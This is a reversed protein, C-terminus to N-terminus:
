NKVKEISAQGQSNLQIQENQRYENVMNEVFRIDEESGYIGELVERLQDKEQLKALKRILIGTSNALKLQRKITELRQRMTNTMNYCKNNPIEKDISKQNQKSLLSQLNELEKNVEEELYVQQAELGNIRNENKRIKIWSYTSYSALITFLILNIQLKITHSVLALSPLTTISALLMQLILLAAVIRINKITNKRNNSKKEEFKKNTSEITKKLKAILDKKFAIENEINGINILDEIKM